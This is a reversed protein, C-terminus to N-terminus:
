STWTLIVGSFEMDFFPSNPSTDAVSSVLRAVGANGKKRGSNPRSEVMAIGPRLVFASTFLHFLRVPAM